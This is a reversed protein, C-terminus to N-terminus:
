VVSELPLSFSVKTGQKIKSDLQVRGGHLEIFYKVLYLGLGTGKSKLDQDKGRTFKQWVKEVEDANIGEGNDEIEVYLNQELEFSKVLIKGEAQTYKIANDILNVIVERILTIDAEISFLPELETSLEIRKEHALPKLQQVASLIIENMDCVEKHLRFDRSEVRLLQLISQIYKHLEESSSRLSKLDKLTAEDNSQILLRDVISQIKAIPTKLDHSILSVFNNKLQELSSLYVQEQQLQWTKREMRNAQYGVFIIWCFLITALPSIIPLWIYFTDFVWVSIATVLLGLWVLFAFSVKHPYQTILIVSILMIVFLFLSYIGDHARYIWRDYLINDTIQAILQSRSFNGLPTQYYFSPLGILGIIIIKNKLQNEPIRNELLDQILFEKFIHGEGRFNIFEPTWGQPKFKQALKEAIHPLESRSSYFRRIVGDNDRLMEASGINSMTINSGLPRFNSNNAWLVRSDHFMSNEKLTPLSDPLFLSIAVTKPDYTFLKELVQTWLAEDWFSSETYEGAHEHSAFDKMNFSIIVLEQSVKQPGRFQFRQDYSKVEDNLLILCAMLWSLLGRFLFGRYRNIFILTQKAVRRLM